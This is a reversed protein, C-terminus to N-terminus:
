LYGLYWRALYQCLFGSAGWLLFLLTFLRVVAWDKAAGNTCDIVPLDKTREWYEEVLKMRHALDEPDIPTDPTRPYTHIWPRHSHPCPEWLKEKPKHPGSM